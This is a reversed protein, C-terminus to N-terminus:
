HAGAVVSRDKVSQGAQSDENQGSGTSPANGKGVVQDYLVAAAIGGLVPALMYLWFDTFKLSVIMPGLARVPNVAGGTVAGGILVAAVLAFGISTSAVAAPVREDTAVAVVVFVLLFTILAEVVFARAIGIGAAPYTAGLHTQDRAAIGLTAWTALAGLIAGALQALRGKSRAQASTQGAGSSGNKGAGPIDKHRLCAASGLRGTV